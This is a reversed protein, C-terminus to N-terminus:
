NVIIPWVLRIMLFLAIPGLIAFIALQFCGYVSSGRTKVPEDILGRALRVKHLSWGRWKEQRNLERRNESWAADLLMMRGEQRTLKALRAYWFALGAVLTAGGALGVFNILRSEAMQSSVNRSAVPASSFLDSRLQYPPVERFNIQLSGIAIWFFQGLFLCAVLVMAMRQYEDPRVNSEPRRRPKETRGPSPHDSPIAREKLSLLRYQCCYYTLCAAVLILDLLRLASGVMDSQLPRSSEFGFPLYLLYILLVLALPPAARWRLVLGTAAVLTPLLAALLSGESLVFMVSAIVLLAMAGIFLYDRSASPSAADNPRLNTQSM